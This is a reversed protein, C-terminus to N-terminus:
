GQKACAARAWDRLAQKSGEGFIGDIASTYFGQQQLFTQWPRPEVAELTMAQEYSALAQDTEGMNCLTNARDLHIAHLEPELRLARDLVPLAEAHRNLKYLVIGLNHHAAASDPALDITKRCDVLAQELKGLNHLARCRSGYAFSLDETQWAGGEIEATCATEAESWNTSTRCIDTQDAEAEVVGLAALLTAAAAFRRM